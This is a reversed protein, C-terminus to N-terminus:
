NEYKEINNIYDFLNAKARLIENIPTKNTKKLYAHLIIINRDIVCFYFLRYHNNSFDVRLERIKGEIHRSYPEDLYAGNIRLYEIYKSIKSSIKKDLSKIFDLAPEKGTQSDCYFKVKYEKNYIM